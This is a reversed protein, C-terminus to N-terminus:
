AWDLNDPISYLGGCGSCAAYQPGNMDGMDDWGDTSAIWGRQDSGSEHSYLQDFELQCSQELNATIVRLGQEECCVGDTPLMPLGLVADVLQDIAKAIAEQAAQFRMEALLDRMDSREQAVLLPSGERLQAAASTREQSHPQLSRPVELQEFCSWGNEAFLAAALLDAALDRAESPLIEALVGSRNELWVHAVGDVPEPASAFIM